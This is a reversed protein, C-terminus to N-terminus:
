CSTSSLTTWHMDLLMNRPLYARVHLFYKRHYTLLWYNITKFINNLSLALAISEADKPCGQSNSINNEISSRSLFFLELASVKKQCCFSIFIQLVGEMGWSRISKM